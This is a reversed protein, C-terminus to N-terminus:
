EAVLRRRAEALPSTGRSAASTLVDGLREGIGRVRRDAEAPAAHEIERAVASVIGGAGVLTDPAWCIGRAHLLEATPDADLQNNAAGVVARCHLAAVSAPDLIGGVASPVLIDAEATLVQRPEVWTAGWQRALERRTPDLDGVTLRAGAAALETGVLAGVHGLGHLAFSLDKITRAPFLHKRVAEISALVGLATPRSSDGSGGASEPLCLAYATRQRLVAMDDPSSGIDPGTFYRGGFSEVLDAVDALLDGRRPGTFEAASGPELAVVTKGGGYELGALAAKETMAASLRVADTLGDRWHPYAKIRCGGLAPGRATSDVAVIIMQGTRTGRELRVAEPNATM